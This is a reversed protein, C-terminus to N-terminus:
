CCCSCPRSSVLLHYMQLFPTAACGKCLSWSCWGLILIFKVLCFYTVLYFSSTCWSWEGWPAPSPQYSLRSPLAICWCLFLGQSCFCCFCFVGHILHLGYFFSTEASVLFGASMFSNFPLTVGLSPPQHFFTPSNGNMWCCWHIVLFTWDPLNRTFDYYFTSFLTYVYM